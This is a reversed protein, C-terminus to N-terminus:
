QLERKFASRNLGEGTSVRYIADPVNIKGVFSGQQQTLNQFQFLGSLASDGVDENGTKPPTNVLTAAGGSVRTTTNSSIKARDSRGTGASPIDIKSSKLNSISM